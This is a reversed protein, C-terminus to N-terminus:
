VDFAPFSVRVRLGAAGDTRDLLEVRAKLALAIERVIALGLGSGEEHQTAACRYFREFVHVREHPAIGPGNDEVVFRAEDGEREVTVTVAGGPQCYRLANDVLNELMARLLVPAGLVVAPGVQSGLGLDIRRADAFEALEVLVEKAIVGLETRHAALREGVRHDAASLTLLQHILRICHQLTEHSAELAAQKDAPGDGRMGISVQTNLVTIPTKLQHAANSIFRDRETVYHAIRSIYDNIAALLPKLEAPAGAGDIPQTSDPAHERVAAGIRLVPVLAARAWLRGLVAVALLLLAQPWVARWWISRTLLNRAQVTSAVQIWVSITGGNVHVPQNFVVVRAASGDIEMDFGRWSEHALQRHLRPLATSGTLLGGPEADVRYYVRDGPAIQLNELAAPPVELRLGDEGAEIDQGIMRASGVLRQDVLEQAMDIASQYNLWSNILSLILLPALLGVYLQSRLSRM